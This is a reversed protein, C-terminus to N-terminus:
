FICATSSYRIFTMLCDHNAPDLNKRSQKKFYNMKKISCSLSDRHDRNCFRYKNRLREFQKVSLNLQLSVFECFDPM